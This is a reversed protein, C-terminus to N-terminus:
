YPYYYAPPPAYAYPYYPYYPYYARRPYMPVRAPPINAATSRVEAITPERVTLPQTLRFTVVSEAPVLIHASPSLASLGAGGLGGIAAGLLAIPGGGVIGGAIAGIAAAGVVTGATQGGKGPGQHAWPQTTLVYSANGVNINSLQLALKPSGELHGSPRADIVTGDIPAGRPLAILGDVIVNQALVGHFASGPKSHHSDLTKLVQVRLPTGQAITVKTQDNQRPDFHWQEPRPRNQAYGPNGGPQGYGNNYGPPPPPPPYGQPNGQPYGQDNNQPYNQGNQPYSQGNQPYSQGNQPYNQGNQPYSQGNEPANNPYPASESQQQDPNQDANPPTAGTSYSPTNPAPTEQPPQTEQAPQQGATPAAESQAEAVASITIQDDVSTVGPVTRVLAEAQQRQAHSAVTGSLTAIGGDHVWVGLDLQRLTSSATLKTNIVDAIQDDSQHQSQQATMVGANPNLTKQAVVDASFLVVSPLLVCLFLERAMDRLIQRKM